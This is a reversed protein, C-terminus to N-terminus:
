KGKQISVIDAFLSRKFNFVSIIINSIEKFYLKIIEKKNNNVIRKIKLHLTNRLM